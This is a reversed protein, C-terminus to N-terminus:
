YGWNQSCHIFFNSWKNVGLYFMLGLNYKQARQTDVKIQILLIRPHTNM